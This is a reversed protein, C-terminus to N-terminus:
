SAIRVWARLRPRLRIQQQWRLARAYKKIRARFGIGRKKKPEPPVILQRIADFAVTFKEDTSAQLQNLRRALSNL